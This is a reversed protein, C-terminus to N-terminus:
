KPLAVRGREALMRVLTLTKTANLLRRQASEARRLRFAAQSLSAGPPSAADMEGHQAALWTVGVLDILLTELPTAKSGALEAKMCKLRRPISEELLKNGKSLLGIWRKEALANLDGTTQWIEPHEDLLRRLGVLCEENGLNARRVVEALAQAQTPPPAPVSPETTPPTTPRFSPTSIARKRLPRARRAEPHGTSSSAAVRESGKPRPCPPTASPEMGKSTTNGTKEIVKTM